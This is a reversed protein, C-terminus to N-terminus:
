CSLVIVHAKLREGDRPKAELIALVRMWREYQIQCSEISTDELVSKELSNRLKTKEKNQSRDVVSYDCTSYVKCVLFFEWYIYLVLINFLISIIYISLKFM